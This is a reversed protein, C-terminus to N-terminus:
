ARRLSEEDSPPLSYDWPRQSVKRTRWDGGLWRPHEGRDVAIRTERVDVRRSPYTVPRSPSHTSVPTSPRRDLRGQHECGAEREFSDGTTPSEPSAEMRIKM